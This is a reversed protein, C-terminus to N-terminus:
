FPENCCTCVSHNTKIIKILCVIVCWYTSDFVQHSHWKAKFVIWPGFILISTVLGEQNTVVKANTMKIIESFRFPMVTFILVPRFIAILTVQLLNFLVILLLKVSVHFCPLGLYFRRFVRSLTSSCPLRTKLVSTFLNKTSSSFRFFFLGPFFACKVSLFSNPIFFYLFTNLNDLLLYVFPPNCLNLKIRVQVINNRGRQISENMNMIDFVKTILVVFSEIKM